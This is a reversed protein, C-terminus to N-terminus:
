VVTKLKWYLTSSTSVQKYIRSPSLEASKLSSYFCNTVLESLAVYIGILRSIFSPTTTCLQASVDAAKHEICVMYTCNYRDYAAATSHVHVMSLPSVVM